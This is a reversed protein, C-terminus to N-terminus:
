FNIEIMIFYYINSKRAILDSIRIQHVLIVHWTLNIDIYYWVVVHMWHRGTECFKGFGVVVWIESKQNPCFQISGIKPQPKLEGDGVTRGSCAMTSTPAIVFMSQHPKFIPMSRAEIWSTSMKHVVCLECFMIFVINAANIINMKLSLPLIESHIEYYNMIINYLICEFNHRERCKDQKWAQIYKLSTQFINIVSASWVGRVVPM